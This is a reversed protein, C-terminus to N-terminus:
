WDFKTLHAKWCGKEIVVPFARLGKYCSWHNIKLSKTDKSKFVYVHILNLNTM